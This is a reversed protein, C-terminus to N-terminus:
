DSDTHAARLGALLAETDPFWSEAMDCALTVADPGSPAGPTRRWLHLIEAVAANLRALEAASYEDTFYDRIM